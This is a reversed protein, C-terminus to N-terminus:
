KKQYETPSMGTVHKFYKGFSSQTSFNLAYAVQQINKHSYRLMNKAEEVVLHAIWESASNGTAEKVLHSLYKPSICLREAYFAISRHRHHHAQLLRMFEQVYAAQRTQSGGDAKMQQREAQNSRFQLLQYIFSQVQSRGINKSFLSDRNRQANNFLLTFYPEVLPVDEADLRVIPSPRNDMLSHLDIATLDFNLDQMFQKSVILLDIILDDSMDVTFDVVNHSGLVMLSDPGMEYTKFDVSMTITGRRVFGWTMTHMKIPQGLIGLGPNNGQLRCAMYDNGLMAFDSAIKEIPGLDAFQFETVM